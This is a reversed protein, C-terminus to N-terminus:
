SLGGDSRNNCRTCCCIIADALKIWEAAMERQIAWADPDVATTLLYPCRAAYGVYQKRKGITAMATNGLGRVFRWAVFICSATPSTQDFCNM